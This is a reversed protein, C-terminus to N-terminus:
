APVQTQEVREENCGQYTCQFVGPKVEEWDHDCDIVERQHRKTEAAEALDAAYERFIPVANTPYNESEAFMVAMNDAVRNTMTAIEDIQDAQINALSAAPSEGLVDLVKERFPSVIYELQGNQYRDFHDLAERLRENQAALQDRETKLAGIAQTVSGVGDEGIAQMLAKEWSMVAEKRMNRDQEAQAMQHVLKKIDSRLNEREGKVSRLEEELETFREAIHCAFDGALSNRIYDSFEPKLLGTLKKRAKEISSVSM